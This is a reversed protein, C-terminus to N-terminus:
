RRGREQKPHSLIRTILPSRDAIMLEIKVIASVFVVIWILFLIEGIVDHFTELDQFSNAYWNAYLGIMAIRLINVFATGGAGVLAYVIKRRRPAELKFMLVLVVISYIIMSHVGASPWFIQLVFLGRDGQIRLINSYGEVNVGVVRLISTVIPVVVNVWAQLAGLSGYPFFGDLLFIVTMGITYVLPIPLKRVARLGLSSGVLAIVYATFILQEWALLWSPWTSFSVGLWYGSRLLRTYLDTPLSLLLYFALITAMSAMSILVVQRKGRTFRFKKRSDFWDMILFFALFLFGGRGLQGFGSWGRIFSDPDVVALYLIPMLSIPILADPKVRFPRSHAIAGGVILLVIPVILLRLRYNEITNVYQMPWSSYAVISSRPGERTMVMLTLTWSGKPLAKVQRGTKFFETENGSIHRSIDVTVNVANKDAFVQGRAQNRLSWLEVASPPKVSNWDQGGGDSLRDPENSGWAWLKLDISNVDTTNLRAQDFKIRM